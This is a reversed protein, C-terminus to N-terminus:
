ELDFVDGVEGFPKSLVDILMAEDYEYPSCSYTTMWRNYVQKHTAVRVVLWEGRRGDKRKLDIYISGTSAIKTTERYWGLREALETLEAAAEKVQENTMEQHHQSPDFRRHKGQPGFKVSEHSM